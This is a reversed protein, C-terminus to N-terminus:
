SFLISPTKLFLLFMRYIFITQVRINIGKFILWVTLILFLNRNFIYSLISVSIKFKKSYISTTPSFIIISYLILIFKNKLVDLSTRDTLNLPPPRISTTVSRCCFDCSRFSRWHNDFYLREFKKLFLFIIWFLAMQTIVYPSIVSKFLLKLLSLYSVTRM